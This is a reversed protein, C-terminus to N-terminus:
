KTDHIYSRYAEMGSKIANADIHTNWMCGKCDRLTRNKWYEKLINYVELSDFDWFYIKDEKSITPQFDDCIFVQGDNNITVWSPFIEEKACNWDRRVLIDPDNKITNLFTNSTHIKNRSSEKLLLMKEAFIRIKDRDEFKFLLEEIGNYHKCKSGSNGIDDHIIDFLMWIDEKSFVAVWDPYQDINKRTLTAVFAVDRYDSCKKQFYKVREYALSSKRSSSNDLNENDFGDFSVTLSKLGSDILIDIKDYFDSFPYATILTNLMGINELHNIIEPLYEFDYLPEAGYIACFNCGLLKLNDFGKKWLDLNKKIKSSSGFKVMNCYKCRLPCNRTWLIEAKVLNM